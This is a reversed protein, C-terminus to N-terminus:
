KRRGMLRSFRRVHEQARERASRPDHDEVAQVIECLDRYNQEMTRRTRPLLKNYYQDINDHVSRLVTEFVPNGAVAALTMHLLNDLRIFSEWDPTKSEINAHAEELVDKLRRVDTSTARSAALGTVISEVGERFEAVDAISVKQQRLLLALGDHLQRANSENVFAGGRVGTRIEILGKHEVVRLAERLTGRSTRFMAVLEREPPLRDGAALRGDLITEQIQDVVSEFIRRRRVESFATKHKSVM